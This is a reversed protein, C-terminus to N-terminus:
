DDWVSRSQVQKAKAPRPPATDEDDDAASPKWQLLAGGLTLVFLGIVQSSGRAPLIDLWDPHHRRLVALTLATVLTLGGLSYLLVTAVRPWAVVVAIGSIVAAGFAFPLVRQVDTPLTLWAAYLFQGVNSGKEWDPWAWSQGHRCSVWAALAAWLALVASFAVGVWARHWVYASLGLALSGGMATTWGAIHWDLWRPVQLGLAAGAAVALLTLTGRSARAGAAWLALGALIGVLAAVLVPTGFDRPLLTLMDQLM